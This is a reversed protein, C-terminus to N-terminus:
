FLSFDSFLTAFVLFVSDIARNPSFITSYFSIEIEVEYTEDLGVAILCYLRAFWLCVILHFRDFIIFVWLARLTSYGM